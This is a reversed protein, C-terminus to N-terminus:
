KTKTKSLDSRRKKHYSIAFHHAYDRLAILLQGVKTHIDLKKGDPFLPTFLTEERKALSVINGQPVIKKAASYQSKGGDIVILDPIDKPDKYRRAIIEQLAAYDNQQDLTKIKFRRFANKDPVGDTFRVCSGVMAQSQFHSIDFCDITRIIKDTTVFQKLERNIEQTTHTTDIPTIKIFWDTKFKSETFKTRITEFIVDLNKLYSHLHQAKEFELNATYEKIKEKISKLCQRHKNKLTNIALEMRFFYDDKSFSTLCNGACIGLHYDLCGNSIKKNCLTLRFTRVLFAHVGRAHSKHLFPGFYQGKQKKNRVIKIQPIIDKPIMIYVFPQGSKLLVNYKPQHEKILQAELLLAETDNKTSISDVSAHDEILSAIKWDKKQNHFYSNIRKKLSIAKGIYIVTNSQDKFFYVGPSDPFSKVMKGGM